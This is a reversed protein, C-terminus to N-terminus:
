VLVLGKKALLSLQFQDTLPPNVRGLRGKERPQVSRCKHGVGQVTNVALFTRYGDNCPRACQVSSVVPKWMWLRQRTEETQPM